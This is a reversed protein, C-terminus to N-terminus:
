VSCVFVNDFLKKAPTRVIHSIEYCLTILKVPIAEIVVTVPKRIM